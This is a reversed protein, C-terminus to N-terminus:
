LRYTTTQKAKEERLMCSFCIFLFSADHSFKIETFFNSVTERVCEYFFSNSPGESTVEDM